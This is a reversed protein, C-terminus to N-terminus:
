AVEKRVMGAGGSIRFFPELLATIQDKHNKWADTGTYGMCAAARRKSIGTGPKMNVLDSLGKFMKAARPNRHVADIVTFRMLQFLPVLWGADPVALVISVDRGDRIATRYVGQYLETIAKRMYIDQVVPNRFRGQHMAPKGAALFLESLPMDMRLRLCAHLGCDEISTFFGAAPMFASTCMRMANTGRMLGRSIRHPKANGNHALIFQETRAVADACDRNFPLMIDNGGAFIDRGHRDVLALGDATNRDRRSKTPNGVVVYFRATGQMAYNDLDPCTYICAGTAFESLSLAATADLVIISKCATFSRLDLRDKKVRLVVGNFTYAYSAACAAATRFFLLFRYVLTEHEQLKGAKMFRIIRGAIGSDWVKSLLLWRMHGDPIHAVGRSGKFSLAPFLRRLLDSVSSGHGYRNFIGNLTDLEDATFSEDAFTLLAEDCIIRHRSFNHGKECLGLFAERTMVVVPRRLQRRSSWYRCGSRGTCTRCASNKDDRLCDRYTFIRGSLSACEESNWGAYVGVSGSPILEKLQNAAQFVAERNQVVLIYPQRSGANVAIHGMSWTSKGLGCHLMVVSQAGSNAVSEIARCTDEIKAGLPIGESTCHMKLMTRLDKGLQLCDALSVARVSNLPRPVASASVSSVPRPKSLSRNIESELRGMYRKPLWPLDVLIDKIAPQDLGLDYLLWVANHFVESLNGVRHSNLLYRAVDTTSIGHPLRRPNVVGIVAVRHTATKHERSYSAEPDLPIGRLLEELKELSYRKM